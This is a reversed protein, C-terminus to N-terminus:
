LRDRLGWSNPGLILVMTTAVAFVKSGLSGAAVMCFLSFYGSVALLQKWLVGSRFGLLEHRPKRPPESDLVIGPPVDTAHTQVITPTPLKPSDQDALSAGCTSCFKAGDQQESGCKSCCQM